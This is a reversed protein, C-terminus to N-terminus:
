LDTVSRPSVRTLVTRCQQHDDVLCPLEDICAAVMEMTMVVMGPVPDLPLVMVM